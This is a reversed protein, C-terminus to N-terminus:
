FVFSIFGWIPALHFPQSSFVDVDRARCLCEGARMISCSRRICGRPLRGRQNSSPRNRREKTTSISMQSLFCVCQVHHTHSVKQTHKKLSESFFFLWLCRVSFAGCLRTQTTKHISSFANTSYYRRKLITWALFVCCRKHLLHMRKRM